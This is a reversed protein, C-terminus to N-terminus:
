NRIWYYKNDANKLLQELESRTPRIKMMMDEITRDRAYKKGQEATLGRAKDYSCGAYDMQSMGRMDEHTFAM